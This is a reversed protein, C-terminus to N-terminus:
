ATNTASKGDALLGALLDVYTSRSTGTSAAQPPHRRTAAM